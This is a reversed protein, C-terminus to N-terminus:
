LSKKKVVIDDLANGVVDSTELSEHVKIDPLKRRVKWFM